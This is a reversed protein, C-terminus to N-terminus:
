FIDQDEAYSDAYFWTILKNEGWPKLAQVLAMGAESLLANQYESENEFYLEYMLYFRSKGGPKGKIWSVESRMLGPLQEALPLHTESFFQDVLTTDDVQRYLTVFKYM